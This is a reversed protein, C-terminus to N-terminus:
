QSNRKALRGAEAYKADSATDELGLGQLKQEVRQAASIARELSTAAEGRTTMSEADTEVIEVTELSARELASELQDIEVLIEAVRQQQANLRQVRTEHSKVQTALTTYPQTGAELKALRRQMKVLEKELEGIDVEQVARWLSFARQLCSVGQKLADHALGQFRLAGLNEGEGNKECLFKMFRQYASLLESGEKVGDDFGAERCEEIISEMEEEESKELEKLLAKVREEGMQEGRVIFNYIWSAGGTFTLAFAAGVAVASLGFVGIWLGSVAAGALPLITAPHQITETLVWKRVAESNLDKKTPMKPSPESLWRM